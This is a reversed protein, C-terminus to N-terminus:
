KKKEDYKVMAEVAKAIRRVRAEGSRYYFIGWLHQRKHSVPMNEWGRRAKPNHVFEAQLIPPASHEGDRMEFLTTVIQELRRQKAEASKPQVLYEGIYKRMSYSFAEFYELLDPDEELAQKLISPTRAIRKENDPELEVKVTDGLAADARKLMQKNTLLFHPGNKRPFLSTRYSFGYIHPQIPVTGGKGFAKKVDFPVDVVKWNLEPANNNKSGLKVIKGSFKKKV